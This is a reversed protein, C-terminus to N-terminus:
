NGNSKIINYLNNLFIAEVKFLRRNNKILRHLIESIIFNNYWGVSVRKGMLISTIKIRYEENIGTEELNLNGALECLEALKILLVSKSEHFNYSNFFTMLNRNISDAYIKEGENIRRLKSLATDTTIHHIDIEM